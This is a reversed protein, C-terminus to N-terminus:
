TSGAETYMYIYNWPSVFHIIGIKAMWVFSIIYRCNWTGLFAVFSCFLYQSFVFNQLGQIRIEVTVEELLKDQFEEGQKDKLEEAQQWLSFSLSLPQQEKDEASFHLCM